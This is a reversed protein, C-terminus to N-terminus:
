RRAKVKARVSCICPNAVGGDEGPRLNKRRIGNKGDNEREINAPSGDVGEDSNIQAAAVPTAGADEAGLRATTDARRLGSSVRFLFQLLKILM